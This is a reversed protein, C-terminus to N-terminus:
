ETDVPDFVVRIRYQDPEAGEDTYLYGKAMLYALIPNQEPPMMVSSSFTPEFDVERIVARIERWSKMLNPDALPQLITTWDYGGIREADLTPPPTNRVVEARQGSEPNASAPAAPVAPNNWKAQLESHRSPLQSGQMDTGHYKSMYYGSKVTGDLNVAPALIDLVHWVVGKMATRTERDTGYVYEDVCAVHLMIGQELSLRLIEPLVGQNIDMACGTLEAFSRGFMGLPGRDNVKQAPVNMEISYGKSGDYPAGNDLMPHVWDFQVMLRQTPDAGNFGPREYTGFPPRTAGTKPDVTLLRGLFERVEPGSGIIASAIGIGQGWAVVPQNPIGAPITEQMSM